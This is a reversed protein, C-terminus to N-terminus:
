NSSPNWQLVYSSLHTPARIIYLSYNSQSWHSMKAVHCTLLHVINEPCESITIPLVHTPTIILLTYLLLHPTRFMSNLLFTHENLTQKEGERGGWIQAVTEEEEIKLHSATMTEAINGLPVKIHLTHLILFLDIMRKQTHVWERKLISKIKDLLNIIRMHNVLRGVCGVM